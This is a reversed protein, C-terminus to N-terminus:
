HEGTAHLAPLMSRRVPDPLLRAGAVAEHLQRLERITSPQNLLGAPGPRQEFHDLAGLQRFSGAEAM